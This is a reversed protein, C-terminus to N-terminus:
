VVEVIELRYTQWNGVGMETNVTDISVNSRAMKAGKKYANKLAQVAIASTGVAAIFVDESHEDDFITVQSFQKFGSVVTTGITVSEIIDTLTNDLIIKNRNGDLTDAFTGGNNPVRGDLEMQIQMRQMQRAQEILFRYANYLGWELYNGYEAWFITGEELM